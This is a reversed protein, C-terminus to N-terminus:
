NKFLELCMLRGGHVKLGAGQAMKKGLVWYGIGLIWYGIGLVWYGIGKVGNRPRQGHATHRAGAQTDLM